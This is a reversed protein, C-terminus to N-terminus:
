KEEEKKKANAKEWEKGVKHAGKDPVGHKGKAPNTRVWRPLPM